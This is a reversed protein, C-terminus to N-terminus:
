ALSWRGLAIAYSTVLANSVAHAIVADGLKFRWSYV